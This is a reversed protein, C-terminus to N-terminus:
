PKYPVTLQHKIGERTLQEELKQFTFEGGNDFRVMKLKYGTEREVTAKFRVSEEFVESKNKLFYVSCFRNYDDVFLLFYGAGNLSENHIPCCLDM